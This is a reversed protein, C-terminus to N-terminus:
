YYFGYIITYLSASDTGTVRESFAKFLITFLANWYRPLCSKKFKSITTIVGNYGMQWFMKQIDVDTISEPNTLNDSSTFGLLKSFRSKSISTMHTAVELSINEEARNYVVSSYAFSHHVVPVSESKTLAKSIKSYKLCEIMPKLPESYRSSDLDIVMNQNPKVTLMIVMESQDNFSSSDAM